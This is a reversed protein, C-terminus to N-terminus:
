DLWVREFVLESTRAAAGRHNRSALCNGM